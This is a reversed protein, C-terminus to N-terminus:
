HIRFQVLYWKMGLFATLSRSLDRSRFPPKGKDQPSPSEPLTGALGRAAPRPSSEHQRRTNSGPPRAGSSILEALPGLAVRLRGGRSLWLPACWPYHERTTWSAGKFILVAATAQDLAVFVEVPGTEAEDSQRADPEHGSRDGSVTM